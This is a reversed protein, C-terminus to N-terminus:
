WFVQTAISVLEVAVSIVILWIVIWELKSSHSSEHQQQLVGLLDKLMNLRTNLVNTRNEMELYLYIKNFIALTHDEKWFIDPTDLIETNLNVDHRIRFVEGIMTGLQKPSLRLKGCTALTEPIYKYDAVRREIRAEFLSLVASQAIAFSVALRDKVGSTAPLSIVDNAISVENFDESVIFAMDDQSLKEEEDLLIKKEDIFMKLINKIDEEEGRHYGWFVIAGFEFVFIEHQNAKYLTASSDPKYSKTPSQPPLLYNSMDSVDVMDVSQSRTKKNDFFRPRM